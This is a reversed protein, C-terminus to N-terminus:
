TSIKLQSIDSQQLTLSGDFHKCLTSKAIIKKPLDVSSWYYFEVTIFRTSDLERHLCLKDFYINKATIRKVKNKIVIDKEQLIKVVCCTKAM